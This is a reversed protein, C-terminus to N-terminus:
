RGYPMRFCCLIYILVLSIFGHALQNTTALPSDSPLLSNRSIGIALSELEAASEQLTDALNCELPVTYRANIFLAPSQEGMLIVKYFFVTFPIVDILAIVLVIVLETEKPHTRVTRGFCIMYLKAISAIFFLKCLQHCAFIGIPHSRAYSFSMLILVLVANDEKDTFIKSRFFLLKVAVMSVSEPEHCPIIVDPMASSLARCHLDNAHIRSCLM